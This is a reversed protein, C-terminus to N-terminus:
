YPQKEWGSPGLIGTIKNEELIINFDQCIVLRGYSKYLNKIEIAM